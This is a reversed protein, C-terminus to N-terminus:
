REARAAQWDAAGQMDAVMAADALEDLLARGALTALAIFFASM